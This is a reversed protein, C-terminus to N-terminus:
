PENRDQLGDTRYPEFGYRAFIARAEAGRLFDLWARAEAPHAADKVAAGAYAGTENQEAPIDVRETPLKAEAQFMAESRWTVGADARGQMLWVPTQRHHMRTLTTTGEAVKTEYVMRVLEDGGAKRLASKIQRAVGEFEPNPMALRLGPRALDALGTVKAPNGKPVMIALQNTVYPIVPGVLDGERVLREVAGLGALYADPKATWTMNGVTIRGGARMQKVLLGPPITEYYIRGALEPHLAEFAAVLPAMAFFYNGGVYLILRANMLDGHFDALNDAEYVTFELGKDRAPANAGDQWPPFIRDGSSARDTDHRSQAVAPPVAILALCTLHALLSLRLM